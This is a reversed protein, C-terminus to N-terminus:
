FGFGVAIGLVYVQEDDIFDVILGPAYHLNEGEIEYSAILRVLGENNGGAREIGPGIGFHMRDFKIYVPVAVVWFDFDGWTREAQVAVGFSDNIRREYEVGLALGNERREHTFGIFGALVNKIPGEHEESDSARAPAICVSSILCAILLFKPM